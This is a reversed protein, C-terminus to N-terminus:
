RFLLIEFGLNVAIFCKWGWTGLFPQFNPCDSGSVKHPHMQKVAETFEEFSLDAVLKVNQSESILGENVVTSSSRSVGPEAFVNTFYKKVVGCMEKHNDVVIGDEKRLLTVHNMKKRMSESAHFFKSNKDGEDLWFVKARQRWYTEEHFM